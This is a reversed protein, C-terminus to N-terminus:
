TNIFMYYSIKKKLCEPGTGIVYKKNTFLDTCMSKYSLTEDLKLNDNGDTDTDDANTKFIGEIDSDKIESPHQLVMQHVKHSVLRGAIWPNKEVVKKFQNRLAEKAANIDGTYYTMTTIGEEYGLGGKEDTLLQIDSTNPNTVEVKAM